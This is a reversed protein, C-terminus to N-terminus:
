VAEFLTDFICFTKSITITNCAKKATEDRIVYCLFGAHNVSNKIRAHEVGNIGAILNRFEM